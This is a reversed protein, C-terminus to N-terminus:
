REGRLLRLVEPAAARAVQTLHEQGSGACPHPLRLRPADPMGAARATFRGQEWFMDTVFAM